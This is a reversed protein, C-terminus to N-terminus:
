EETEEDQTGESRLRAAEQELRAEEAERTLRDAEEQQQQAARKAREAQEEAEDAIEEAETADHELLAEQALRAEEADSEAIKATEAAIRNEVSMAEDEADVAEAAAIRDAAEQQRKAEIAAEHDELGAELLTKMERYNALNETHDDIQSQEIEILSNLKDLSLIQTKVTAPSSTDFSDYVKQSYNLYPPQGPEDPYVPELVVDGRKKRDDFKSM